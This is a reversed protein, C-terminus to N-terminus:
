WLSYSEIVASRELFLLMAGRRSEEEPGSAQLHAGLFKIHSDCLKGPTTNPSM